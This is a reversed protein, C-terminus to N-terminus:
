QRGQQQQQQQMLKTLYATVLDLHGAKQKLVAMMEGMKEQLLKLRRDIYERAEKSNQLAYSFPFSLHFGQM